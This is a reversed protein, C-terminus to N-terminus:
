PPTEAPAGPAAVYLVIEAPFGAEPRPGPGVIELTQDPLILAPEQVVEIRYLLVGADPLVGLRDDRDVRSRPAGRLRRWRLSGIQDASAIVAKQVWDDTEAETRGAAHRVGILLGTGDVWAPLLTLRFGDDHGAFRITMHTEAITDIMRGIFEIVPRLSRQIDGHDYAEFIPPVLGPGLTAVAGAIDSLATYLAFPHAAGIGILAELRPLGAVLCQVAHRTEALTSVQVVQAPARLRGALFAAKERMRRAIGRCQEALGSDPATAVTPPTYDALRFAENRYIVRALPVHVFKQPVPDAVLLALRPQLRPIAQENDGTNEDVVPATEVSRYRALEGGAAAGPKHVPVVAHVIIPGDKLAEGFATLDIQLDDGRDRPHTVLLGDPLVAELALVRFTGVVLLAQDIELRAVGYSFPALRATHYHLLQDQRLWGQQFHQPTLLMGEYWQIPDPVPPTTRTM